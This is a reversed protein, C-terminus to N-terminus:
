GEAERRRLLYLFCPAGLLATVVGVPLEAPALVTRALADAGVLFAAGLLASAPLLRRHGPGWLLRVAHPIVLGVFGVLGSLAVATATLAGAAALIALRARGVNLGLDAAAEEGQTFLDLAPAQRWLLLFAAGSWLAAPGLWSPDAASLDGALWFIATRMPDTPAIWLLFLLLASALSGIMVGALILTHPSSRHARAVWYVAALSGMAGVFAAAPLALPSHLGLTLATVAGLGAGGSVGLIYPDALPNRLVAQFAGGASGLAAGVLAALLARPLRIQLVVARVTGGEPRDLLVGLIQRPSLALPGAALSAALASALALLLLPLWLRRRRAIRVAFM